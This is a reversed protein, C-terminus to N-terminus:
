ITKGARVVEADHIRFLPPMVTSGVDIRAEEM